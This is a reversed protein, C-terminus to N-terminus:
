GHNEQNTVDSNGFSEYAFLGEILELMCTPCVNRKPTNPYRGRILVRAGGCVRCTKTWDIVIHTGEIDSM